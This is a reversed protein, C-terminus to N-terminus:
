REALEAIHSVVLYFTRTAHATACFSNTDDQASAVTIGRKVGFVERNEPAFPTLRPIYAVFRDFNHLSLAQGRRMNTPNYPLVARKFM